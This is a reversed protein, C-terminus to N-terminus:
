KEWDELIIQREMYRELAAALARLGSTGMDGDLIRQVRAIISGLRRVPVFLKADPRVFRTLVELAPRIIVANGILNRLTTQLTNM